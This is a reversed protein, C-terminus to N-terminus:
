PVSGVSLTNQYEFAGIDPGDGLPRPANDYDFTLPDQQVHGADIAVPDPLLHYNGAVPDVFGMASVLGVLNNYEQRQM